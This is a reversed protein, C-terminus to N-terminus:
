GEASLQKAMKSAVVELENLQIHIADGLQVASCLIMEEALDRLFEDQLDQSLHALFTAVPRLWDIVAQKDPFVSDRIITKIKISGFGASELLSTYEEATFYVRSKTFSPFYSTWKESRVLGESLTMMNAPGKAYTLLLCRGGAVLSEHIRHLAAAQDVVWHLASFSVVLDFQEPFVISAADGQRFSLNSYQEQTFSSAAFEIMKSSIDVGVVFGQPVWKALLATVKGDGCGVDLVRENGIWSHEDMTEIAAQWQQNSHHHYGGADEIGRGAAAMQWTFLSAVLALHRWVM